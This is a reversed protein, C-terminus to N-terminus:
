NNHVLCVLFQFTEMNAHPIDTRQEFKKIHVVTGVAPSQDMWWRHCPWVGVKRGSATPTDQYKEFSWMWSISIHDDKEHMGPIGTHLM